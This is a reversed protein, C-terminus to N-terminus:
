SQWGKARGIAEDVAEDLEEAPVPTGDAPASFANLLEVTPWQRLAQYRKADRAYCRICVGCSGDGEEECGVGRLMEVEATKQALRRELLRAVEADVYEYDAHFTGDRGTQTALDTTPTDTM